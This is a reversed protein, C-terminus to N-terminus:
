AAIAPEVDWRRAGFDYGLVRDIGSISRGAAHRPDRQIHV